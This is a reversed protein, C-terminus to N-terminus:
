LVRKQQQPQPGSAQKTARLGTPHETARLGTTGGLFAAIHSGSTLKTTRLGNNAAAQLSGLRSNPPAPNSGVVECFIRTKWSLNGVQGGGDSHKRVKAIAAQSDIFIIVEIPSNPPNPGPPRPRRALDELVRLIAFLEADAVEVSPGLNEYYVKMPRNEPGLECFACANTEIPTGKLRGKSGDTYFVLPRLGFDELSALSALLRLHQKKALPKSAEIVTISAKPELAWPAEWSAKKRELSYNPGIVVVLSKLLSFLQTSPRIYSLAGLDSGSDALEDRVALNYAQRIPHSPLLYLTRLAYSLCAKEFRVEPPPLAAEAELARIPSGKFAGLVKLLAQNQLRQFPKIFSRPTKPGRYWLQVGYDAITTVCAQSSGLLELSLGRQMSVLRSLGEFAAQAARVKTNIHDKFLLRNDFFIGLWRVLTKAKFFLGGVRIGELIPRKQRSFHILETKSPDFQVKQGEAQEFLSSAIAELQRINKKASTSTISISFDDM